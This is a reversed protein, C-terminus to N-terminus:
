NRQWAALKEPKPMLVLFSLYRSPRFVLIWISGYIRRNKSLFWAHPAVACLLVVMWQCERGKRKRQALFCFICPRGISHFKYLHSTSQAWSHFAKLLSMLHSVFLRLRGVVLEILCNICHISIYHFLCSKFWVLSFYVSKIHVTNYHTMNIQISM